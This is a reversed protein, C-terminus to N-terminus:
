CGLTLRLAWSACDPERIALWVLVGFLILAGVPHPGYGHVLKGFPFVAATAALLLLGVGIGVAIATGMTLRRLRWEEVLTAVVPALIIYTSPETAPGCFTMWACGLSAARSVAVPQPVKRIRMHVCASAAIGAFGLQLAPYWPRPFGTDYRYLLLWLDRYMIELNGGSRDDDSLNSLWNKYQRVVYEPEQFAFPIAAIIICVGLLRTIYKWPCVLALLIGLSLPYIKFATALGIGAASLWWRSRAAAAAGIMIGGVVAVNAQGNNLCGICLPLAALMFQGTVNKAGPVLTRGWWLLGVFLLLAASIRWIASAVHEELLAFPVLLVHISPSYRCTDYVRQYLDEGDYWCQGAELYTQVCNNRKLSISSRLLVVLM